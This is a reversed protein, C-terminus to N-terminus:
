GKWSIPLKICFSLYLKGFDIQNKSKLEANGRRVRRGEAGHLKGEGGDGEHAGDGGRRGLLELGEADRVELVSGRVRGRVELGLVVRLGQRRAVLRAAVGGVVLAACMECVVVQEM